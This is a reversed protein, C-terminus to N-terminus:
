QFLTDFLTPQIAQLFKVATVGADSWVVTGETMIHKFGNAGSVPIAVQCPSGVPLPSAFQMLVGGMGINVLMAYAAMRGMSVVKVRRNFPIRDFIRQDTSMGM